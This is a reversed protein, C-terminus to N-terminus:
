ATPAKKQGRMLCLWVRRWCMTRGLKRHQEVIAAVYKKEIVGAELLPRACIDLAQSWDEVRQQLTITADSIWTNLM